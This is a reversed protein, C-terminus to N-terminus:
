NFYIVCFPDATLSIADFVVDVKPSDNDGIRIIWLFRPFQQTLINYKNTFSQNLLFNKYPNLEKLYLEVNDEKYTERNNKINLFIRHISDFSLRIKPYLPILLREFFIEEIGDNGIWENRWYTFDGDNNKPLVRSYPGIQDDHVYLEKLDGKKDYRYGSVVVAHLLPIPINKGRLQICAIVPLGFSLYAKLADSISQKRTSSSETEDVNIFETEMGISNFYNKMQWINLGGSPFNRELGPFMVSAKTIEFPSSRQTEFLANLSYLSIWIATTACAAVMKDQTQYPLSELTLPLGFLSISNKNTIFHRFEDGDQLPYTKLVTRGIFFENQTLNQIPKVVVFGLYSSRLLELFDKDLDFLKKFDGDSFIESFFHLRKTFKDYPKFSRAYFYSYDLLYDKDIYNNEVLVTKAKLDSLYRCIYSSQSSNGIDDIVQDFPYIKVM